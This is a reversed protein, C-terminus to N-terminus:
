KGTDPWIAQCGPDRELAIKTAQNLAEHGLYSGKILTALRRLAKRGQDENIWGLDIFTAKEDDTLEVELSELYECFLIIIEKMTNEKHAVTYAWYIHQQTFSLTFSM